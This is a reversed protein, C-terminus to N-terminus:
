RNKREGKELAQHFPRHHFLFRVTKGRLLFSDHFLQTAGHQLQEGFGIFVVHNVEESVRFIIETHCLLVKGPPVVFDQQNQGLIIGGEVLSALIGQNGNHWVRGNDCVQGAPM